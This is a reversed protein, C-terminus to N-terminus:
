QANLIKAHHAIHDEMFSSIFFYSHNFGPRMRLNLKLKPNKEVAAKLNEPLLITNLFEDDGGQDVLIEKEPGNYTKIIEVSDYLNWKDRNEDGLYGKLATEKGWTTETPNCIPAFASISLLTEPKRLGCVMAGHGGMSHGFISLKGTTPFNERM